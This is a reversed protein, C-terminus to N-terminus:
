PAAIVPVGQAMITGAALATSLVVSLKRKM